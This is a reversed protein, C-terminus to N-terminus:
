RGEEGFISGQSEKKEMRGRRIASECRFRREREAVNRPTEGASVFLGALPSTHLSRLATAGRESAKKRRERPPIYM